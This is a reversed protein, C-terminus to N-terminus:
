QPRITVTESAVVSGTDLNKLEVKISVPATLDTGPLQKMQNVAVSFAQKAKDTTTDVETEQTALAQEFMAVEADTLDGRDTITVDLKFTYIENDKDNDKDCASFVALACFCSMLAVFFKTKM